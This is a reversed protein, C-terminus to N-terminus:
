AYNCHVYFLTAGSTIGVNELNLKVPKITVYYCFGRLSIFTESLTVAM